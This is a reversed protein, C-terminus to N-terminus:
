PALEHGLENMLVTAAGWRAVHASLELALGQGIPMPTQSTESAGTGGVGRPPVCATM